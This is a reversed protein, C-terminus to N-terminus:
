ESLFKNIRYLLAKADEIGLDYMEQLRDPNSEIRGLKLEKSPRVLVIGGKADLEDIEQLIANYGVYRNTITKVL